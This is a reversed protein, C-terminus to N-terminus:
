VVMDMGGATAGGLSTNVLDDIEERRKEDPVELPYGDTGYGRMGGGVAREDYGEIDVLDQDPVIADHKPFKGIIYQLCCIM